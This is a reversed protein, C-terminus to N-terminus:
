SKLQRMTNVAGTNVHLFTYGIAVTSREPDYFRTSGILENTQLDFICYASGSKVAETFFSRFVDEKYRDKSPHQEWILPDSAVSYLQDFDEEKLLILKVKNDKLEKPINFGTM